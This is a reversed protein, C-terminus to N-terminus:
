RPCLMKLDDRTRTFQEISEKCYRAISSFFNKCMRVRVSPDRKDGEEEEMRCLLPELNLRAIQMFSRRGIIGCYLSNLEKFLDKPDNREELLSELRQSLSVGLTSTKYIAKYEEIVKGLALHLLISSPPCYGTHAEGLIKEIEIRPGLAEIVEKISMTSAGKIKAGGLTANIFTREPNVAIESELWRLYTLYKSSTLVKEANTGDIWFNEENQIRERHMMELTHFKDVGKLMEEIYSSGSSHTMGGNFCLDLGVFMIPNCGMQRALDFCATAVSGGSKLYGKEGIFSSFWQNLPHIFDAMFIPGSFSQIIKPYTISVAVLATKRVGVEQFHQYNEESGDLSVVLDPEIGKSLLSKLATDCAIILAKGKAEQLREIDRDLSPGAGVVISPTDRFRGRLTDIGPYGIMSPLNLLLNEQWLPVFKTLTVKNQSAGNAADKLHGIIEKFYTKHRALAPPYPILEIQSITNIKYFQDLRRQTASLPDEGISLSLQDSSILSTFDSLSLVQKFGEIDPDIVLVFTKKNINKLVEKVHFGNGFGLIAVTNARAIEPGVNFTVKEIPPCLSLGNKGVRELRKVLEPERQSLLSLNVEYYGM